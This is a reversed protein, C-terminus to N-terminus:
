IKQEKTFDCQLEWELPVHSVEKTTRPIETMHDDVRLELSRVDWNLFASISYPFIHIKSAM